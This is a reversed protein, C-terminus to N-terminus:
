FTVELGATLSRGPSEFGAIETYKKNFINEGRFVLAIDSGSDSLQVIPVVVGFDVKWYAPLVVRASSFDPFFQFDDRKGKYKFDIRLKYRNERFETYIGGVHRPRRLLQEGEVFSGGPVSGADTVETHTFTYQGGLRLEGTPSIFGELELGQSKAKEVNLYNPAGPAVFFSFEILNSFRNFFVTGSLGAGLNRSVYDLGFDTALNKEPNLDENGVIGFSPLGGIEIFNPARFGNGLSARLKFEDNILYGASVSGTAFSKFRNNNDYRGGVTLFFHDAWSFQEQLYAGVSRRNLNDTESEERRYSVGATILNRADLQFNNQWDLYNRNEIAEFTFDSFDGTGDAVTFNRGARRHYGYHVKTSYRGTFLIEYFTSFVTEQTTRFDNPDVVAGSDGNPIHYESDLYRANAGISSSANLQFATNASLEVKDYQNNFEYIGDSQSYHGGLSYHLKKAEGQLGGRFLYTDFTAREFRLNGSPRGGGKRTIIHITSTMADAGYLVSSPGRVIEIREINTTTLDAFDFTGGPRNAQVGDILVLNFDSEGGRVLISGTSGFSGTRVVNFGPVTELVQLVDRAGQAEIDEATILTLSQGIERVATPTRTATVTVEHHIPPLREGSSQEPNPSNSDQEREGTQSPIQAGTVATATLILILTLFRSLKIKM